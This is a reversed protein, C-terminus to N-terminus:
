GADLFVSETYRCLLPGPLRCLHRVPLEPRDPAQSPVRQDRVDRWAPMKKLPPFERQGAKFFVHVGRLTNTVSNTQFWNLLFSINWVESNLHSIGRGSNYLIMQTFIYFTRQLCNTLIFGNIGRMWPFCYKTYSNCNSKCPKHLMGSAPFLNFHSAWRFIFPNKKVYDLFASCDLMTEDSSSVFHNPWLNQKKQM